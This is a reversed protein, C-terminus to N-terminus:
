AVSAAAMTAMTMTSTTTTTTRRRPIEMVEAELLLRATECVGIIM